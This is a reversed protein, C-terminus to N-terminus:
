RTEGEQLPASPAVIAHQSLTQLDRWARGFPSDIFVAAMGARAKLLDAARIGAQVIQQCNKQVQRILTEPPSIGQELNGWVSEALQYLRNRSTDILRQAEGIRYQIDSDESLPTTSGPVTKHRILEEFAECAHQAIGVAVSAFSLSALTELPCRFIADDSIPAKELSFTFANPVAAANISFDNSGTAQMGFVQWTDHIVVQEAPVAISIIEKDGGDIKCNATFWTAHYAGSAYPWRGNVDFGSATTKAQGAPMGSGAIVAREPLFVERAAGEELFGSFLGGGAGIMVLWGTAGDASAVLEFVRLASPLDTTEGNYKDAIFLRFLRQEFLVTLLEDTLHGQQESERAAQRIAPLISKVNQLLSESNPHKRM